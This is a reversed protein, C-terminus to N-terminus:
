AAKKAIAHCLAPWARRRPEACKPRWPHSTARRARRGRPARHPKTRSLTAYPPGHGGDGPVFREVHLENSLVIKCVACGCASPLRHARTRRHRTSAVSSSPSSACTRLGIFSGDLRLLASPSERAVLLALERANLRLMRLHFLHGLGHLSPVHQLRSLAVGLADEITTSKEPGCFFRHLAACMHSAHSLV